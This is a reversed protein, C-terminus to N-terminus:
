NSELLEADLQAVNATLPSTADSTEGALTQLYGHLAAIEEDTLYATRGRAVGTMMENLERGGLATGTRMLRTFDDLSYAAVIALTPTDGPYGRM